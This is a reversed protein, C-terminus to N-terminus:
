HDLKANSKQTIKGNTKKLDVWLNGGVQLYPLGSDIGEVAFITRISRVEGLVKGGDFCVNFHGLQLKRQRIQREPDRIVPSARDDTVQRLLPEATM